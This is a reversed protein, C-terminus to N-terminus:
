RPGVPKKPACKPACRAAREAKRRAREAAAARSKEAEKARWARHEEQERYWRAEAEAREVVARARREEVAARLEAPRAVLATPLPFGSRERKRAMEEVREIAETCSTLNFEDPDRLYHQVEREAYDLRQAVGAATLTLSLREGLLGLLTDLEDLAGERGNPETPEWEGVDGIFVSGDPRRLPQLDDRVTWGADVVALLQRELDLYERATLPGGPGQVRKNRVTSQVPRLSLMPAGWAPGASRLPPGAVRRTHTTPEGYERVLAPKGGGGHGGDGGAGVETYHIEPIISLGLARLTNAAAAERLLKDRAEEPTWPTGHRNKAAAVKV